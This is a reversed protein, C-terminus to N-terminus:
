APRKSFRWFTRTAIFWDRPGIKKGEKKSRPYYRIPVEALRVGRALIKATIEHDLEFGRTVLELPRIVEARFLKLATVTDSIYRGTTCLAILSLSQGGIYAPLSQGAHKSAVFNILKGRGPYKLYRSGYVADLGERRLTELMPIYDRPDYELDADQIMIYDGTALRVGVQVASGKGENKPKRHLKVEPFGAAIEATRDRSGDDVVIVERELGLPNLDLALVNELLRGIFREEQYAPIVISLKEPRRPSINNSTARM